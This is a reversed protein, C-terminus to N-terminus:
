IYTRYRSIHLTRTIAASLLARKERSVGQVELIGAPVSSLNKPHLALTLIDGHGVDVSGERNSTDVYVM